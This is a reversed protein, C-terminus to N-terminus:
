QGLVQQAKTPDAVKFVAKSSAGPPAATAYAYSVNVNAEALRRALDAFCGPENPLDLMLVDTETWRVDAADLVQQAKDPLDCVLRLVGSEGSDALSLAQINIGAGSLAEAAGALMGPRNVLFVSFQRRIQM